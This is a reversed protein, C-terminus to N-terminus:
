AHDLSYSSTNVKFEMLEPDSESESSEEEKMEEQRSANISFVDSKIYEFRDQKNEKFGSFKSPFPGASVSKIMRPTSFDPNLLTGPRPRMNLDADPLFRQSNLNRRVPTFGSNTKKLLNPQVLKSPSM